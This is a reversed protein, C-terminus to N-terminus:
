RSTTTWSPRRAILTLSSRSSTLRYFSRSRWKKGVVLCRRKSPLSLESSNSPSVSKKLGKHKASRPRVRRSSIISPKEISKKLELRLLRLLLPRWKSLRLGMSLKHSVEQSSKLKPSASDISPTSSKGWSSTLARM